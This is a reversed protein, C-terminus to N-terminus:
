LQPLSPKLFPDSDNGNVVKTKRQKPESTSAVALSPSATNPPKRKALLKRQREIDERQQNIGEQQRNWTPCLSPTPWMALQAASLLLVVAILVLKCLWAWHLIEVLDFHTYSTVLHNIHKCGRVKDPEPIRIRRDVARHVISRTQRHYLSWSPSSGAHEERSMVAEGPHETCLVMCVCHSVIACCTNKENVKLIWVICHCSFTHLCKPIESCKRMQENIWFVLCVKHIIPVNITIFCFSGSVSSEWQVFGVVVTSSCAVVFWYPPSM